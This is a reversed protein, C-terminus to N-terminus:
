RMLGVGVGIGIGLLGLRCVQMVHPAHWGHLIAVSSYTCQLVLIAELEIRTACLPVNCPANCAVWIWVLGYSSGLKAWCKLLSSGIVPWAYRFGVEYGDLGEM